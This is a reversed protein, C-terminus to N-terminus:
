EHITSALELEKAVSPCNWGKVELNLERSHQPNFTFSVQVAREEGPLLSIYNDQFFVPLIDEDDQLLDLEIFFAIKDSENKLEVSLWGNDGEIGYQCAVQLSASPLSNLLKFDAYQKSPTHFGWSGTDAQYDLVDKKTSLWYFNNGVENLHNDYLRLDLFYTGTMCEEGHLAMVKLTSERDADVGILQDLRCVSENDYIRVRCQYDSLQYSHDNVLYVSHDGYHYLLHLPECAKRTGYFAGNPKLYVDYLQWYMEPWASNLMWQIVGTAGPRNVQFAEFMARMLEYNLLQSKRAFEEVSGSTGYREDTAKQIRDLKSFANKGCHYEWVEDIPWLNERPIFKKISRLPPVNAGPCTETNFGYAGGLKTDTFWYVPPTYAYPGLMKVGSCGSVESILETSTIIAQESGVGGTSNLYPRSSDYERFIELYKRELDPHPLFDSAVTWVFISPHNRLWIVQDKWSKAILDIDDAEVVGGYVKDVPKGLYQEHEWHCSWGVMMLIGHQDCLDYLVQDKGWIGELRICNLNMHKVYAIQAALNERTDQLLLDDTWGAGKILVKRGNIKFGRHGNNLYDEVQRIGFTTHKLDSIRGDAEFSLELNYLNPEGLGNPWWLRPAKINLQPFNEPLFRIRCQEYPGLHVKEGFEVSGISGKLVGTVPEATHNTLECSVKLDAENLTELNVSSEVFTNQISVGQNFFLTVERFLGMNGDPPSVNWDVFGTSFDGAVPPIVEVALVNSGPVVFDSINFLFTRFAGFVLQNNAVLQGNLWINAQYNIGNFQLLVTQEAQQQLVQFEKRYWWSCEFEEQPIKKLNTGFYPDDYVENEILAALVTGPVNCKYWNEAPYKSKSVENGSAALASSQLRWDEALTYSYM